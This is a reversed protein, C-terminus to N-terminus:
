AEHRYCDALDMQDELWEESGEEPGECETSDFEAEAQYMLADQVVGDDELVVSYKKEYEECLREYINEIANLESSERSM